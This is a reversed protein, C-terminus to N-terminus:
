LMNTCSCRPWSDHKPLTYALFFFLLWWSLPMNKKFCYVEQKKGWCLKACMSSIFSYKGSVVCGNGTLLIDGVHATSLFGSCLPLISGTRENGQPLVIIKSKLWGGLLNLPWLMWINNKEWGNEVLSSTGCTSGWDWDQLMIFLRLGITKCMSFRQSWFWMEALKSGYWHEARPRGVGVKLRRPWPSPLQKGSWVVNRVAVFDPTSVVLTVCKSITHIEMHKSLVVLLLGKRLKINWALSPHDFSSLLSIKKIIISCM